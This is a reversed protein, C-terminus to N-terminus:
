CPMSRMVMPRPWATAGARVPHRLVRAIRALAKLNNAGCGRPWGLSFCSIWRCATSRRSISPSKSADRVLGFLKDSIALKGDHPIAIGEGDVTSGLASASPAADRLNMAPDLGTLRAAHGSIEQLAKEETPRSAPKVAEVVAIELLM